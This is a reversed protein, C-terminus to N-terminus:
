NHSLHGVLLLGHKQDTGGHLSWLHILDIGIGFFVPVGPHGVNASGHLPSGLTKQRRLCARGAWDHERSQSAIRM